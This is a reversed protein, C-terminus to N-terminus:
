GEPMRATIEDAYRQAIGQGKVERLIGHAKVLATRLANPDRAAEIQVALTEALPGLTDNLFRVAFRKVEDYSRVVGAPAAATAAPAGVAAGSAASPAAGAGAAVAPGVPEILGMQELETLLEVTDGFVASLKALEDFSRKGDVLILTSRLRPTLGQQRTAIAEQGKTSKRYIAQRNM